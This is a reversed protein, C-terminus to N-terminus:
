PLLVALRRLSAMHSALPGTGAMRREMRVGRCAVQSAGQCTRSDLNGEVAVHVMVEVVAKTWFVFAQLTENLWGHLGRHGGVHQVGEAEVAAVVVALTRVVALSRTLALADAWAAALAM